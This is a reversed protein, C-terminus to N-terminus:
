PEELARRVYGQARRLRERAVDPTVGARAIVVATKVEGHCDRWLQEAQQRSVRGASAVIRNARDRLKETRPRLDVMINEFVKGDHYVKAAITTM